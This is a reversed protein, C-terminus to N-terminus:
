RGICCYYYHGHVIIVSFPGVSVHAASKVSTCFSCPLTFSRVEIMFANDFSYPIVTIAPLDHNIDDCCRAFADFVLGNGDELEAKYVPFSLVRCQIVKGKSFITLGEERPAEVGESDGETGHSAM